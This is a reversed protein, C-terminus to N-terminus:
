PALRGQVAQEFVSGAALLLEEEGYKAIFTAGQPIGKRDAGFPVTLEPYGAASTITSGSSNLFVAADLDNEWFVSDIAKQAADISKEIAKMDPTGVAQTAELLDQGYRARRKLDERNYRILSDLSTIPLHYQEAYSEFDQKFSLHIINQVQVGKEDIQIDIVQAGLDELRSKLNQQVTDNVYDYSLFGIRMGSLDTRDPILPLSKGTLANYVATVDQVTKAIPGATDVKSILPFIGENSIWGRSPKFGTVSNVASPGIISGATETGISVPVLNATVAVASGSSSGSPSLKLPSFPNVTQGKAGSYGSPMVSSVFYAFESLNNKGLIVAGQQKLAKVIASDNEPTFEAFAAAGASAPMGAANINDKLMVPIGFLLSPAGTEGASLRKKLELDRERAQAVADPAIGSVSNFGHRSQDLTKIRQLYFLTIEEYTLEGDAVAQQLGAISKELIADAKNKLFTEGNIGGSQRDISAILEQNQYSIWEEGPPAMKKIILFVGAAIIFLSLFGSLVIKHKKKMQREKSSVNEKKEIKGYETEPICQRVFPM